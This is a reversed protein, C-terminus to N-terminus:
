RLLTTAPLQVSRFMVATAGCRLIKAYLSFRFHNSLSDSDAQLCIVIAHEVLGGALDHFRCLAGASLDSPRNWQGRHLVLVANQAARVHVLLRALLELDAGVLTQEVDELGRLLRDIRQHLEVKGCAHINLDLGEILGCLFLEYCRCDAVPPHHPSSVITLPIKPLFIPIVCSYSSFPSTRGQVTSCAPGQTTVWRLVTVRSPYSDACIPRTSNTFSDRSVPAM